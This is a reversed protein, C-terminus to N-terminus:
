KKTSSPAYREAPWHIRRDNTVKPDAHLLEPIYSNSPSRHRHVNRRHITGINDYLNDKIDNWKSLDYLKDFLKKDYFYYDTIENKKEIKYENLICYLIGEDVIHEPFIFKIVKSLIHIPEKLISEYSVKFINKNDNFYWEVITNNWSEINRECFTKFNITEEKTNNLRYLYKSSITEMPDRYLFLDRYSKVSPNQVIFNDTFRESVKTIKCYLNLVNFIISSGSRPYAVHQTITM